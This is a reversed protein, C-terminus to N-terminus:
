SGQFISDNFRSNEFRCPHPPLQLKSDWCIELLPVLAGLPWNDITGWRTVFWFSKTKVLVPWEHKDRSIRLLPSTATKKTLPSLNLNLGAILLISSPHKINSGRGHPSVWHINWQSSELFIQVLSCTINTFRGITRTGTIPTGRGVSCGVNRPFPLGYTNKCGVDDLVNDFINWKRKMLSKDQLFIRCCSNRAVLQTLQTETELQTREPCEPGQSRCM